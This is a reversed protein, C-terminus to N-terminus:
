LYKYILAAHSKQTNVDAEIDTSVYIDSSVVGQKAAARHDQM